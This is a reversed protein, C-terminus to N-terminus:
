QSNSSWKATYVTGTVYNEMCFTKIKKRFGFIKGESNPHVTYYEPWLFYKTKNIFHSKM